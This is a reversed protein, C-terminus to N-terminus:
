VEILASDNFNSHEGCFVYGLPNSVLHTCGIMMDIPHHSHDYILASIRGKETQIGIIRVILVRVIM